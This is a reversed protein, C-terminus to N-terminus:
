ESRSSQVPTCAGVALRASFVAEVRALASETGARMDLPETALWLADIRIMQVLGADLGRLARGCLGALDALRQHRWEIRIDPPLSMQLVLPMRQIGHSLRKRQRCRNLTPSHFRTNWTIACVIGHQHHWRGAYHLWKTVPM